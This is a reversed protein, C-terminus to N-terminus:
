RAQGLAKCADQDGEDCKKRYVKRVVAVAKDLDAPDNRLELTLSFAAQMLQDLPSKACYNTIWAVLAANDPNKYRKSQSFLEEATVFGFLWNDQSTAAATRDRHEKSWSGCSMVGAGRNIADTTEAALPLSLVVGFAVFMRIM